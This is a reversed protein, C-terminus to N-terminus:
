RVTVQFDDNWRGFPTRISMGNEWEEMRGVVTPLGYPHELVGTKWGEINWCELKGDKWKGVGM